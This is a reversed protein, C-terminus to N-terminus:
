HVATYIQHNATYKLKQTHPVGLTGPGRLNFRAKATAHNTLSSDVNTYATALIHCNNYPGTTADATAVRGRNIM